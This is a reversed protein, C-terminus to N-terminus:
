PLSPARLGYSVFVMRQPFTDMIERLLVIIQEFELQEENVTLLIPAPLLRGDTATTEVGKSIAFAPQPEAM